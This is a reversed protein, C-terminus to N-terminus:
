SRSHPLIAGSPRSSRCGKMRTILINKYQIEIPKLSFRVINCSYEQLWQDCHRRLLTFQKSIDVFGFRCHGYLAYEDRLKGVFHNWAYRCAGALGYMQHYKTRSNARVRYRVTRYTQKAGATM